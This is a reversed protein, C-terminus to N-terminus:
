NSVHLIYKKWIYETMHLLRRNTDLPHIGSDTYFEVRGDYKAYWVKGISHATLTDPKTILKFHDVLQWNIPLPSTGYSHDHCDVPEYHDADWIMCGYAAVRREHQRIIMFVSVGVVLLIAIFLLAKNVPNRPPPPPDPTIIIPEGSKPTKKGGETPKVLSFHFPRPKFDLLLALLNINRQNTDISRDKLVNVLPRFPDAPNNRIANYYNSVDGRQKIFSRLIQEDKTILGQACIRLVEAKINAPTPLLLESPLKGSSLQEDYTEFVWEKYQDESM